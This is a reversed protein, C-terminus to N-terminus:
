RWYEVATSVFSGIISKDIVFWRMSSDLCMRKANYIKNDYKLKVEVTKGTPPLEKNISKWKGHKLKFEGM